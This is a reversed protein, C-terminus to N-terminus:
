TNSNLKAELEDAEKRLQAIRFEDPYKYEVSYGSGIPDGGGGGGGVIPLEKFSRAKSVIELIEKAIGQLGNFSGSYLKIYM